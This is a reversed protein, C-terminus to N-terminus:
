HALDDIPHLKDRDTIQEARIAHLISMCRGLRGMREERAVFDRALPVLELMSDVVM